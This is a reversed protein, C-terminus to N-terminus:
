TPDDRVPANPRTDIQEYQNGGVLPIHFRERGFLNPQHDANSEAEEQQVGGSGGRRCQQSMIHVDEDDPIPFQGDDHNTEAHEQQEVPHGEVAADDVPSRLGREGDIQDGVVRSGLLQKPRAQEVQLIQILLRKRNQPNEADQKRNVRDAGQKIEDALCQEGGGDVPLSSVPEVQQPIFCRVQLCGRFQVSLKQSDAAGSIKRQMASCFVSLARQFGLLPVDHAIYGDAHVVVELVM